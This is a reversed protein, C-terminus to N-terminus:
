AAAAHFSAAYLLSATLSLEGEREPVDVSASAVVCALALAGVLLLAKGTMAPLSQRGASDDHWPQPSTHWPALQTCAQLHNSLEAGAPQILGM